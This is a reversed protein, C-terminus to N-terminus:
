HKAKFINTGNILAYGFDLGVGRINEHLSQHADMGQHLVPEFTGTNPNNTGFRAIGLDPIRTSKWQSDAYWLEVQYSNKPNFIDDTVKIAGSEITRGCVVRAVNNSSPGYQDYNKGTATKVRSRHNFFGLIIEHDEPMRSLDISHRSRAESFLENLMTPKKAKEIESARKDELMKQLLSNDAANRFITLLQSWQTERPLSEFINKALKVREAEAVADIALAVIQELNGYAAGNDSVSLEGIKNRVELAFPLLGNLQSDEIERQANKTELETVRATLRLNDQYLERKRM